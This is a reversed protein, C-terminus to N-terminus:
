FCTTKSNYQYDRMNQIAIFNDNLCWTYTGDGDGDDEDMANDEGDGKDEGKVKDKNGSPDSDGNNGLSFQNEYSQLEFM